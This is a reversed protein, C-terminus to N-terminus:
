YPAPGARSAFSPFMPVVQRVLVGDSVVMAAEPFKM